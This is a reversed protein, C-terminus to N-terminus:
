KSGNGNALLETKRDSGASSGFYYSVVQTCNGALYGVLTGAFAAEVKMHGTLVSVVCVGFSLLVVWAMTPATWSKTTVQMQRASVRDDVALKELEDVNNIDLQKMQLQFAQESAKLDAIFKQQDPSKVFINALDDLGGVPSKAGAAAGTIANLANGALVGVPGGLSLASSILPAVKKFFGGINAM